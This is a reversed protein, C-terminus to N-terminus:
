KKVEVIVTGLPKVGAFVINRMLRQLESYKSEGYRAVVVTGSALKAIIMGDTVVNSPPTDVFIYDYYRALEELLQKMRTGGIIEAPNPPIAGSPIFDLNESVNPIIVNELRELGALYSSLGKQNGETFVRHLAPKRLDGDIIIVREGLQAMAIALNSCTTTKGESPLASTFTIIKKNSNALSFILNTRAMKYAEKILFSTDETLKTNEIVKKNSKKPKDNKNKRQAKSVAEEGYSYKDKYSGSFDPIEGLVPLKLRRQIDENDKLTNDKMYHILIFLSALLAGFLIGILTIVKINPSSPNIPTKANGIKEMSGSKVIRGIVKSGVEAIKNCILVSLRPNETTAEIRLIETGEELTISLLNRLEVITIDLDLESIVMDGVEDSQLIVIYTAALQQSAYIDNIDTNGSSSSQNNVYLQIYSTYKPTIILMSILFAIGGFILMTMVIYKSKKLLVNLLQGIDIELEGKNGYNGEM